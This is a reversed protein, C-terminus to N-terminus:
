NETVPVFWKSDIEAQLMAEGKVHAAPIEDGAEWLVREGDTGALVIRTYPYNFGSQEGMPFKYKYFSEETSILFEHWRGGNRKKHAGMNNIPSSGFKIYLTSPDDSSQYSQANNIYVDEETYCLTLYLSGDSLKGIISIIPEQRVPLPRYLYVSIEEKVVWGIPLLVVLVCLAILLARKIHPNMKRRKINAFNGNSTRQTNMIQISKITAEYMRRCEACEKLHEEVYARSEESCLNEAYLPLLDQVIECSKM